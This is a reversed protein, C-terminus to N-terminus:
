HFLRAFPRTFFFQDNHKKLKQHCPRTQRKSSCLILCLVKQKKGNIGSLLICAMISNSNGTGILWRGLFHRHFKKPYVEIDLHNVVSSLTMIVLQVLVVYLHLPLIMLLLPLFIAQLIGEFPHFSFATWPSTINSDHHVKHIVRFIRPRHMWRHLWYYYTEHLALSIILALPLWWVSYAGADIYVKTLGRQWLLVTCAGAFAFIFATICSWYLEKRFQGPRYNRESIKRQKWQEPFWFYFVLYFMGAVLLYRGFIVAFLVATAALFWLPASLDPLKMM